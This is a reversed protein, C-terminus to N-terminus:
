TLAINLVLDIKLSNVGELLARIRFFANLETEYLIKINFLVAFIYKNM